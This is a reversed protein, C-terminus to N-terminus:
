SPNAKGDTTSRDIFTHVDVFCCYRYEDSENLSSYIVTDEIGAIPRVRAGLKVTRSALIDCHILLKQFPPQLVILQVKSDKEERATPVLQTSMEPFISRDQLVVPHERKKKAPPGLM